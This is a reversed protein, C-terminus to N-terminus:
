RKEKAGFFCLRMFDDVDFDTITEEFYDAFAQMIADSALPDAWDRVIRAAREINKTGIHNLM